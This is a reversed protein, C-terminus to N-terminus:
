KRSTNDSNILDLEKNFSARAGLIGIGGKVNTHIRIPESLFSLITSGNRQSLETVTFLYDDRSLSTIELFLTEQKTDYNISNITGSIFHNLGNIRDDTFLIEYGQSFDESLDIDFVNVTPNADFLINDNVKLYLYYKAKTTNNYIYARLMYYNHQGDPDHLQFRFDTSGSITIHNQFPNEYDPYSDVVINPTTSFDSTQPRLPMRCGAAIEGKDPVIVHLTLTDKEQLTLDSHYIGNEKHTFRANASAGNLETRFSANEIAYFPTTDLFFRSYSLRLTVTSDAQPLSILVPMTNTQKGNFEITKTCATALTLVALITIITNAKM